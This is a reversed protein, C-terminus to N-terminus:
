GIVRINKADMQTRRQGNWNIPPKRRGFPFGKQGIVEQQQSAVEATAIRAGCAAVVGLALWRMTKSRKM